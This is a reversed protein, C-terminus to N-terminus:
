ELVNVWTTKDRPYKALSIETIVGNKCLQMHRHKSEDYFNEKTGCRRWISAQYSGDKVYQLVKGCKEAVIEVLFYLSTRTQWIYAECINEETSTKAVYGTCKSTVCKAPESCEHHYCIYASSVGDNIDALNESFTNEDSYVWREIEKAFVPHNWTRALGGLWKENREHESIGALDFAYDFFNYETITKKTEASVREISCSNAFLIALCFIALKM